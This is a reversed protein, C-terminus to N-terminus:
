KNAESPDNLCAMSKVTISAGIEEWEMTRSNAILLLTRKHSQQPGTTSLRLAINTFFHPLSSQPSVKPSYHATHVECVTGWTASLCYKHELLVNGTPYLSSGRVSSQILYYMKNIDNTLLFKSWLM